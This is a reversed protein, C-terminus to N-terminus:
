FALCSLRISLQKKGNWSERETPNIICKDDAVDLPNRIRIVASYTQQLGISYLPKRRTASKERLGKRRLPKRRKRYSVRCIGGPISLEFNVRSSM